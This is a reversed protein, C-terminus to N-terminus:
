LNPSGNILKYKQKGFSTEFLLFLGFSTNTAFCLISLSLDESRIESDGLRLLLPSLLKLFM